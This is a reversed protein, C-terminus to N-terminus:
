SEARPHSVVVDGYTTPGEPGGELRLDLRARHWLLNGEADRKQDGQRDLDPQDWRPEWTGDGDLDVQYRAARLLRALLRVLADRRRTMRGGVKCTTSHVGKTDLEEACYTGAQQGAASYTNSCRLGPPHVDQCIRM